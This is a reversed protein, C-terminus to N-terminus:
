SGGLCLSVSFDQHAYPRFKGGEGLAEAPGFLDERRHTQDTKDAM